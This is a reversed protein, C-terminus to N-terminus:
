EEDLITDSFALRINKLKLASNSTLVGGWVDAWVDKTATYAWANLLPMMWFEGNESYENNLLVPHESLIAWGTAFDPQQTLAEDTYVSYVTADVDGKTYLKAGSAGGGVKSGSIQAAEGDNNVLVYSNEGLEEIVPVDTIRKTGIKKETNESM